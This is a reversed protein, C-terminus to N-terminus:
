LRRRARARARHARGHGPGPARPAPPLDARGGGGGARAPPGGGAGRHGRDVHRGDRRPRRARRALGRAGARAPRGGGRGRGRAGHDHRLVPHAAPGGGRLGGRHARAARGGGRADALRHQVRRRLARGPPGRAPRRRRGHDAAPPPGPRPAPPRRPGGRRVPRRRAHAAGPGLPRRPRHRAAGGPRGDARGHLRLPLRLRPARGRELGHGHRAGRARGVRPRRHDRAQGPRLPPPLERPLGDDRAAPLVHEGGPRLDHGVRRAGRARAPRLPVRLPGLPVAGRHRLGRVDARAGALGGLDRGGPGRGHARGA